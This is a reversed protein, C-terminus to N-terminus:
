YDWPEADGAGREGAGGEWAEREHEGKVLDVEASSQGRRERLRGELLCYFFLNKQNIKAAGEGGGRNPYHLLSIQKKTPWVERLVPNHVIALKTM